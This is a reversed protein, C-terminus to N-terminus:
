FSDPVLAERNMVDARKAADFTFRCGTGYKSYGRRVMELSRM